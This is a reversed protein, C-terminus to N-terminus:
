DQDENGHSIKARIVIRKPKGTGYKQIEVEPVESLETPTERTDTYTSSGGIDYDTKVELEVSM